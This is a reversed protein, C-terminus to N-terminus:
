RGNRGANLGAVFGQVFTAISPDNSLDIEEMMVGPVPFVTKSKLTVNAKPLSTDLAEQLAPITSARVHFVGRPLEDPM